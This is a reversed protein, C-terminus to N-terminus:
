RVNALRAVDGCDNRVALQKVRRDQPSAHAEFRSVNTALVTSATSPQDTHTWDATLTAKVSDSAKWVLKARVVQEPPM